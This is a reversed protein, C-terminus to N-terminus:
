KWTRRDLELSRRRFEVMDTGPPVNMHYIGNVVLLPNGRVQFMGHILRELAAAIHPLPPPYLTM